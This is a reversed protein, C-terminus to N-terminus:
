VPAEAPGFAAAVLEVLVTGDVTLADVLALAAVADTDPVAGEPVVGDAILLHLRGVPSTVWRECGKAGAPGPELWGAAALAAISPAYWWPTAAVPGSLGQTLLTYAPTHRAYGRRPPSPVKLQLPNPATM